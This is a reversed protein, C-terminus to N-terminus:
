KVIKKFWSEFRDGWVDLSYEKEVVLRCVYRNITSLKNIAEVLGDVSDPTVLFGTKGDEVIESPGGRAYAIVPVGCALAEIAVNGFAEIWRPTMLLGQCERLEQQLDQTSLFGRYDIPADPYQALIKQWYEEDQIKGFILLPIQTIDCAKVADELAKEPAIRGLWALKKDFKESYQYLSLDLGSGLIECRQSFPFTDAQSKTYVGFNHPYQQATKDMIEDLSDSLSGMSIFQAIPTSFFPTLYFPLWDFAFNVILDYDSQVKRAYEWMNALVSNEPMITPIDRTQTQAPIHVSGEIEIIKANAFYSDQPAVTTIDYGRKQMEQILNYLTLEVGGGIGSSLAGVPTSMFLLKHM